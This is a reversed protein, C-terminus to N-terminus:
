PQEKSRLQSVLPREQLNGLRSDITTRCKSALLSKMFDTVLFPTAFGFDTTYEVTKALLQDGLILLLRATLEGSRGKDLLGPM